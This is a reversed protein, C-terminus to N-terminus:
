KAPAPPPAPQASPPAESPPSASGNKHKVRNLLADKRQNIEDLLKTLRVDQKKLDEYLTSRQTQIATNTAEILDVREDLNECREKLVDNSEELLAIKELLISVNQGVEEFFQVKQMLSMILLNAKKAAEEAQETAERAATEPDTLFIDAPKSNSNAQDSM